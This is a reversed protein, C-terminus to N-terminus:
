KRSMDRNIAELEFDVTKRVFGEMTSDKIFERIIRNTYKLYNFREDFVTIANRVVDKDTEYKTINYKHVPDSNLAHIYLSDELIFCGDLSNKNDIVIEINNCDCVGDIRDSLDTLRSIMDLTNDYWRLLIIPIALCIILKVHYKLSLMTDFLDKEKLILQNYESKDWRSRISSIHSFFAYCRITPIINRQNCEFIFRDIYDINLMARDTKDTVMSPEYEIGVSIQNDAGDDSSLAMGEFIYSVSQNFQNGTIVTNSSNNVSINTSLDIKKMGAIKAFSKMIDNYSSKGMGEDESIAM